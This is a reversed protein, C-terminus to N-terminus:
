RPIDAAERLEVYSWAGLHAAPCRAAWEMAEEKSRAEILFFGGIIEKSESFPGDVVKRKGGEVTLRSGKASPNLAEGGVLVGAKKLENWYNMYAASLSGFEEKTLKQGQNEEHGILIMYRM